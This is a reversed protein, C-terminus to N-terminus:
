GRGENKSKRMGKGSLIEKLMKDSLNYNFFKKYFYRTEKEIDISAAYDPYITKVTWLLALPTEVSGPHGWRSIGNPMKYIKGTKVADVSSWQASGMIEEKAGDEHTIIVQPNWLLVQEINVFAETQKKDSLGGASVNCTGALGTWEAAIGAPGDTKLTELISHYLRVKKNEPISAAIIKVRAICKRYYRNYEEAEKERGITRGIVSVARMQGEISEYYVVIYKIGFKNLMGTEAKSGAITDKIFVIDPNVSLLEEVNLSDNSGPVSANLISPYMGTLLKDRKLGRVVAVIDDARGLMAVVHGSFAYLCGIRKVNAPVTVNRGYCDTVQIDKKSTGTHAADLFCFVAVAALLIGVYIKNKV